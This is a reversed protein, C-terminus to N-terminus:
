LCLGTESRKLEAIRTWGEPDPKTITIRKRKGKNIKKKKFWRASGCRRRKGLDRLTAMDLIRLHTIGMLHTTISTVM